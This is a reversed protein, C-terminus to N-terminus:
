RSPCLSRDLVDRLQGQFWGDLKVLDNGAASLPGQNRKGDLEDLLSLEEISEFLNHVIQYTDFLDVPRQAKGDRYRAIKDKSDQIKREFGEITSKCFERNESSIEAACDITATITQFRDLALNTDVLMTDLEQAKSLTQGHVPLVMAAVLLAAFIRFLKM